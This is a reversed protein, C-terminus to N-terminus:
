YKVLKRSGSGDNSELKYIYVGNPLASLDIAMRYEGPIHDREIQKWIKGTMDMIYLTIRGGTPLRYSFSGRDRAPNPTFAGLTFGSESGTRIGTVEDTVEIHFTQEIEGGNGDDSLIVVEYKGLMKETFRVNTKLLDNEIRFLDNTADNDVSVIRYIHADFDDEDVTSLRGVVAGPDLGYLLQTRSIRIATPAHNAANTTNILFTRSVTGGRGDDALVRISYTNDSQPDFELTSATFLESDQIVFLNNDDDGAGSTLTFSHIDSINPDSAIFIGVASGAPKGGKISSNSIEITEPSANETTLSEQSIRSFVFPRRLDGDTKENQFVMTQFLETPQNEDQIFVRFTLEDADDNGYITMFYIWTNMIQVPQAIGRCEDGSFAGIVAGSASFQMGDLELIGTVNMYNAYDAPNVKWGSDANRHMRANHNIRGASASAGQQSYLFYGEGPELTTM